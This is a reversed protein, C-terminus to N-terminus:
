VPALEGSIYPSIHRFVDRISIVRPPRGNTVLPIHRFGGVSMKHLAVAITDEDRLIVPDPTMIQRVALANLDVNEGAAKLLVDRETLIGVLKDGEEVLVCGIRHQQMVHIALAVPDGPSVDLPQEVGIEGLHDNLVHATFADEGASVDLSRLDHGCSECIDTGRINDTQCDPCIM